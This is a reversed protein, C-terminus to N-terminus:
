YQKFYERFNRIKCDRVELLTIGQIEERKGTESDKLNVVWEVAISDEKECIFLKKVRYDDIRRLQNEMFTKLAQKGIVPTHASNYEIYTSDENFLSMMKNLDKKALADCFSDFLKLPTSKM